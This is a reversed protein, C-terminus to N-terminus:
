GCTYIWQLDDDASQWHTRLQGDTSMHGTSIFDVSSSAWAARNLALNEQAGCNELILTCRWHARASGKESSFAPEM